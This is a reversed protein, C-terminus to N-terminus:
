SLCYDLVKRVVLKTVPGNVSPDTMAETLELLRENEFSVNESLLLADVIYYLEYVSLGNNLYHKCLESLHAKTLYLDIDAELFIESSAGRKSLQMKYDAVEKDICKKFNELELKKELFSKMQSLKVAEIKHGGRAEMSIIWSSVEAKGLKVM